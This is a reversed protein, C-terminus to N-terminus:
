FLVISKLSAVIKKKGFFFPAPVGLLPTPAGLREVEFKSNRTLHHPCVKTLTRACWHPRHKTESVASPVPGGNHALTELCVELEM